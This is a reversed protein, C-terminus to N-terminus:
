LRKDVEHHDSENLAEDYFNDKSPSANQLVKKAKTKKDIELLEKHLDDKNGTKQNFEELEQARKQAKQQKLLDRQAKLRKQREEISEVPAKGDILKETTERKERLMDKLSRGDDEAHKGQLQEELEDFEKFASMKAINRKQDILLEPDFDYGGRKM